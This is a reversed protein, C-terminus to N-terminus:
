INDSFYDENVKYVIYEKVRELGVGYKIMLDLLTEGDILRIHKQVEKLYEKAEKTYHSTTIFVGKEIKKMAGVFRQVDGIGVNNGESYRKAQIYIVDLGLKDESIIGDIGGDHPKGVVQGAKDDYGYGMALLLDVVMKEFFSPHCGMIVEMLSRKLDRLYHQYVKVMREEPLLEDEIDFKDRIKDKKQINGKIDDGDLYLAYYNERKVVHDIRFFKVVSATPFEIGVCHRRINGHVVQEPTKAGFEYLNNDVIKQYIQRYTMGKPTDELVMKIAELITRKREMRKGRIEGKHM